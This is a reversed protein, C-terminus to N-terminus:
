LVLDDGHSLVIYTLNTGTGRGESVSIYLYQREFYASLVFVKGFAEQNRGITFLIADIVGLCAFPFQDCKRIRIQKDM